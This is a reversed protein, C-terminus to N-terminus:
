ELTEYANQVEMSSSVLDLLAVVLQLERKWEKSPHFGDNLGVCVKYGLRFCYSSNMRVYVEVVLRLLWDAIVQSDMM